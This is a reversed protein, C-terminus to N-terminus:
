GERMNWDRKQFERIQEVVKFAIIGGLGGSLAAISLSFILPILPFRYYVFNVMITGTVNCLLGALFACPLCCIRHGILLLGLDAVIGPMSYSLLSMVGQSGLMGTAMVLIAQVVGILTMTGRKGTIGFGMVLWMMYIGGTVAGSPILLPGTIIHSLPVIIPKIAIGIASMLAIIILDYPTFRDLFKQYVRAM